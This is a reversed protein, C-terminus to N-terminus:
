KMKSKTIKVRLNKGKAGQNTLAKASEVVLETPAQVNAQTPSNRDQEKKRSINRVYIDAISTASNPIMAGLNGGAKRLDQFIKPSAAGEIISKVAATASGIDSPVNASELKNLVDKVASAYMQHAGSSRYDINGEKDVTTEGSSKKLRSLEGAYSDKPMEKNFFVTADDYVGRINQGPNGLLYDGLGVSRVPRVQQAARGIMGGIQSMTRPQVGNSVVTSATGSM